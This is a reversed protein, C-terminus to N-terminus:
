GVCYPPRDLAEDLIETGRYTLPDDILRRDAIHVFRDGALLPAFTSAEHVSIGRRLREGLCGLPESSLCVRRQLFVSEFWRNRSLEASTTLVATRDGWSPKVTERGPVLLKFGDGELPSDLSSRRLM